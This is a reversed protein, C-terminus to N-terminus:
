KTGDAGNQGVTITVINSRVRPLDAFAMGDGPRRNLEAIRGVQLKYGGPKSLDFIGALTSAGCLSDGTLVSLTTNSSGSGFSARLIRGNNTLPVPQGLNDFLEFYDQTIANDLKIERDSINTLCVDVPLRNRFSDPGDDEEKEIARLTIVFPPRTGTQDTGHSPATVDISIINSNVLLGTSPDVLTTRVTYRGPHSLDSLQGIAKPEELIEGPRIPLLLFRGRAWGDGALFDRGGATLPVTVNKSDRIEIGSGFEQAERAYGGTIYNTGQWVALRLTQKSLNKVAVNVPVRWGASVSDLSPTITVAFAPKASPPPSPPARFTVINSKVAGWQVQVSYQGPQSLEYLRNLVVETKVTKGPALVFFPGSSGNLPSHGITRAAATEALATGAADRVDFRFGRWMPGWGAAWINIPSNSTNTMSIALLLESPARVVDAPISAVLSIPAPSTEMPPSPQAFSETSCLLMCLIPLWLRLPVSGTSWITRRRAKENMKVM